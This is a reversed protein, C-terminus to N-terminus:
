EKPAAPAGTLGSAAKAPAAKTNAAATKTAVAAKAQAAVPQVAAAVPQPAAAATRPLTSCRAQFEANAKELDAIQGLSERKVSVTSGKGKAAAEVREVVGDKRLGEIRSALSSCAPDVTPKAPLAATPSGADGFSMLSDNACGALAIAAGLTFTVTLARMM